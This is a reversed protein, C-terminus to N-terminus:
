RELKIFKGKELLVEFKDIAGSAGEKTKNLLKLADEKRVPDLGHALVSANRKSLLNKMENDYIHRGMDWGLDNLLNFKMELGLKLRRKEDKYKAYLSPDIKKGRIDEITFKECSLDDLGYERLKMQAILEIARYLRAVADDYKCEKIRREANNILDALM